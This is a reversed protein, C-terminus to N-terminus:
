TVFSRAPIGRTMEVRLANAVENHSGFAMVSNQFKRQPIDLPALRPQSNHPGAFPGLLRPVVCFSLLFLAFACLFLRRTALSDIVLNGNM